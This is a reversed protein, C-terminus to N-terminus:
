NKTLSLTSSTQFTDVVYPRKGDGLAKYCTELKIPLPRLGFSNKSAATLFTLIKAVVADVLKDEFAIHPPDERQGEPLVERKPQPRYTGRKIRM